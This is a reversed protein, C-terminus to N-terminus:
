NAGEEKEKIKRKVFSMLSENKEYPIEEATIVNHCKYTALEHRIEKVRQVAVVYENAFDEMRKTIDNYEDILALARKRQKRIDRGVKDSGCFPCFQPVNIFNFGKGCSECHIRIM